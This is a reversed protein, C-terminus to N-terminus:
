APSGAIRGALLRYADAAPAELLARATPADALSQIVSSLFSAQHDRDPVTLMAVIRCPLTVAPDDMRRFPVPAEFIGVAVGLRLAGPADTHALAFPEAAPLATPNAAEREVAAEVHQPTAAGGAVLLGGVLRIAGAADPAGEFRALWTSLGGSADM